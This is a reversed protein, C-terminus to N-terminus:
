YPGHFLKTVVRSDQPAFVDGRFGNGSSSPPRLGWLHHPQPTKARSKADKIKGTVNASVTGGGVDTVNV